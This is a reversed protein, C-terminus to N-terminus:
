GKERPTPVSSFLVPQVFLWRVVEAVETATSQYGGADVQDFNHHVLYVAIFKETIEASLSQNLCLRGRFSIIPVLITTNEEM